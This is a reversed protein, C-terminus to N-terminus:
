GFIRRRRLFGNNDLKFSKKNFSYNKKLIALFGQIRREHIRRQSYEIHVDLRSELYTKVLYLQITQERSFGM